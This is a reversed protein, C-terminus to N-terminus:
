MCTKMASPIYSPSSWIEGHIIREVVHAQARRCVFIHAAIVKVGAMHNIDIVFGHGLQLLVDVLKVFLGLCFLM